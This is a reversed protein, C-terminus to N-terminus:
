HNSNRFKFHPYLLFRELFFDIYRCKLLNGLSVKSSFWLSFQFPRGFIQFTSRFSGLFIRHFSSRFTTRAWFNSRFSSRFSINQRFPVLFPVVLKGSFSRQFCDFKSSCSLDGITINGAFHSSEIGVGTIPLLWDKAIKYDIKLKQCETLAQDKPLEHKEGNKDIWFIRNILATPIEPCNVNIEQYCSGSAEILGNIQALSPEYKFKFITTKDVSETKSFHASIRTIDKNFDCFVEFAHNGKYRGDPDIAYIGNTTAFDDDIAKLEKCSEASGHRLHFDIDDGSNQLKLKEITVRDKTQESKISAIETEQERFKSNQHATIGIMVFLLILLIFANILNFRTCFQKFKQLKSFQFDESKSEIEFFTFQQETASMTFSVSSSKRSVLQCVSPIM